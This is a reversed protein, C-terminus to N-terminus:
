KYRNLTEKRYRTDFLVVMDDYFEESAYFTGDNGENIYMRNGDNRIVSDGMPPYLSLLIRKDNKELDLLKQIIENLHEKKATEMNKSTFTYM